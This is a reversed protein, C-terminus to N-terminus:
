RRAKNSVSVAWALVHDPEGEANERGSPRMADRPNNRFHSLGGNQAARATHGSDHHGEAKGAARERLLGRGSLGRGWGLRGLGRRSLGLLGGGLLLLLLLRM